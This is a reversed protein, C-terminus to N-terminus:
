NVVIEADPVLFGALWRPSDAMIAARVAPPVIPRAIRLERGARRAIGVERLMTLLVTRIKIRSTAALELIEPHITSQSEYFAEYDSARLVPDLLALKGRLTEAAFAHIYSSSKLAALWAIGTREEVMGEAALKIEAPTLRMLRQRLEREMRLASSPSRAQLANSALVRVKASEWSGTQLYAEAIVRLIEPRLSAATFSFSVPQGLPVKFILCPVGLSAVGIRCIRLRRLPPTQRRPFSPPHADTHCHKAARLATNLPRM